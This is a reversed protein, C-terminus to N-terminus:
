AFLLLMQLPPFSSKQQNSPSKNQYDAAPGGLHKSDLQPVNHEAILPAMPAIWLNWVFTACLFYKFLYKLPIEFTIRIAM